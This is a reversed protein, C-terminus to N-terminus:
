IAIIVSIQFTQINLVRPEFGKKLFPFHTGARLCALVIGGYTIKIFIIFLRFCM